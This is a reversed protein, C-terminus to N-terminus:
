PLQRVRTNTPVTGGITQLILDRDNGSGTYMVSGDMNTDEGWYGALTATPVTAGVRTLIPDRDNGTGTYQVTGNGGCDGTWLTRVSAVTRQADTGYTATATSTFNISGATTGLAIASASMVGLHNRHKVVVHYNGAVTSFSVPSTGDVEVIDGDRQVLASRTAVVTYAPAASRLELFVWDVIANSGTVNLVTPNVTEGGGGAVHVFGLATYPETQPILAASRLADTMQPGSGYAGDLFVKANLLSQAAATVCFSNVISSTFSSGSALTGGEGTLTFSGNGYTCCIGDGYSDNLVLEYCGDPLCLAIPTQPYAGNSAQQTYPGGSAVTIAGSRILWTTEDGYRDLVLALSVANSGHSLTSSATNNAPVLDTGGNPANVTATLTLLGDPLTITGLAVNTSAGSALSGSWPTNGSPGGAISWAITFSTLTNTGANRVTVTPTISTACVNGSAGQIATAQADLTVTPANPDYGNLTNGCSGLWTQLSPYSMDFRGYYDATLSSCSAYGGHLQGIIRGQMNFLASGSSGGETTGDDWAAVRWHSTGSGANGLYNASSLANNEFSIKKVDGSPHHIGVAASSVDTSRDWGAYFVNYSGPPTSNLQLLAVDSAASNVLLTAGSITQNTPGNTNSACTPSDWNFRFVWTGVNGGLCHNATLFYPTGNNACNNILTGTCIGSGSVVIMAVSRIQDRWPDGEPCITNNNCSGSEGLARAHSFIDRYGHTVQGIRLDGRPGNAPVSYEVVIRQGKLAQVGLVGSLTPDNAQTFAGIYGGFEDLVFIQGGPAPHFDHFEFNVSFANPCELGLRWLRTGDELTTWTGSNDLDLSVAHNKGFRWPISKDHDNVADQLTLAEVDVVPLRVGAPASLARGLSHPTGGQEIQAHLLIPAALLLGALWTSRNMQFPFSM